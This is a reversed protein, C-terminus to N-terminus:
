KRMYEPLLDLVELRVQMAAASVAFANALAPVSLRVRTAEERVWDAPMLLEAAFRNAESELRKSSTIEDLTMGIDDPRCFRASPGTGKLHLHWHGLEHAITFRARARSRAAERANIWIRQEAPLLLGSLEGARKAPAIGSVEWPDAHEQVDLGEHEEAIQLADVPLHELGVTKLL